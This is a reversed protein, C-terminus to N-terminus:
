ELANTRQSPEHNLFTICAEDKTLWKRYNPSSPNSIDLLTDILGTQNSPNMAITIPLQIAQELLDSVIDRRSSSSFQERAPAPRGFSLPLLSLVLLSAAIM